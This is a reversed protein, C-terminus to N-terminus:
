FLNYDLNYCTILYHPVKKCRKPRSNDQSLNKNPDDNCQNTSNSDNIPECAIFNEKSGTINDGDDSLDEDNVLHFLKMQSAHATTTYNHQRRRGQGVVRLDTVQYTDSPLIKIVTLPGRYKVQTKTNSLATQEPLRRVVVVDGINYKFADCRHKDYNRKMKEQAIIISEQANRQLKTPNVYDNSTPLLDQTVLQVTRPEIVFKELTKLVVRDPMENIQFDHLFDLDEVHVLKSRGQNRVMIIEPADIIDKGILVDPGEFTDDTVVYFLVEKLKVRDITVNLIIIGLSKRVGGIGRIRTVINKHINKNLTQAFSYKLMSIDAATDMLASTNVEEIIINKTTSNSSSPSFSVANVLPFSAIKPCEKTGHGETKCATCFKPRKPNVCDRAFHGTDYCNYCVTQNNTTSRSPETQEGKAVNEEKLFKNNSYKNNYQIHNKFVDKLEIFEDVKEALTYPSIIHTWQDLYRERIDPPVRAKMRDTIILDKLSEFSSIKLGATWGNFYTELEHYYEKWSKGDTNEHSYFLQRFKEPSLRYCKLLLSKVYDYNESQEEPERMIMQVIESPLQNILCAMWLSSPMQVRKMVREFHVLYLSIDENSTSFKRLQSQWDVKPSSTIVETEVVESTKAAIDLKKLELEHERDAKEKELAHQRDAKEKELAHQRDAKEKELAHAHQREAKEKEEQRLREADEVLNEVMGRVMEEDYNESNLILKRLDPIKLTTSSADESFENAVYRLQDKRLRSLFAM